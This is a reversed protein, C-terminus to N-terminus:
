KHEARICAGTGCVNGSALCYDRYKMDESLLHEILAAKVKLGAEILEYELGGHEFHGMIEHLAQTIEAHRSMHEETEPYDWERFLAEEHAFHAEADFIVAQMRSKIEVMEMRGVIAENLENILQMFHRHEADIEPICVSLREDWDLRWIPTM